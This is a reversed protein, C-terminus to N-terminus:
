LAALSALGGPLTLVDIDVRGCGPASTPYGAPGTASGEAASTQWLMLHPLDTGIDALYEATSGTYEGLRHDFRRLEAGYSAVASRGCGTDALKLGVARLLEGGYLTAHRGSLQTYREAAASITDHVLAPSPNVIRQGGREADLMLPLTGPHREGGVRETFMWAREAQVDGPQHWTLYTYLGEFIDIGHRDSALFPVRQKAAWASYEFDLGETIKFIAFHWPAGHAIYAQWDCARDGPYVDVGCPQITTV